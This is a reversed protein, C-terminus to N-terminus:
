GHPPSSAPSRSAQFIPYGDTLRALRAVMNAHRLLEKASTQILCHCLLVSHLAETLLPHYTVCERTLQTSIATTVPTNTHEPPYPALGSPPVAAFLDHLAYIDYREVLGTNEFPRSSRAGHTVLNIRHTFDHAIKKPLNPTYDFHSLFALYDRLARKAYTKVTKRADERQLEIYERASESPNNGNTRKAMPAPDDMKPPLSTPIHDCALILYTTARQFLLQSDLSNPQHEDGLIVDQLRKKSKGSERLQADAEKLTRSPHHSRNIQLALTLDQAAGIFDLKFCKVTARTRLAESDTSVEDILDTLPQLSTNEAMQRSPIKEHFFHVYKADLNEPRRQLVLGAVEELASASQMMTVSCAIEDLRYARGLKQCVQERMRLKRERSLKVQHGGSPEGTLSGNVSTLAPSAIGGAARVALNTAEDVLRRIKVVDFLVAPDIPRPRPTNYNINAISELIGIPTQLWPGHFSSIFRWHRSTQTLMTSKRYCRLAGLYCALAMLLYASAMPFWDLADQVVYKNRCIILTPSSARPEPLKPLHAGNKKSAGAATGAGAAEASLAADRPM